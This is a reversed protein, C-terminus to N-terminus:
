GLFAGGFTSYAAYYTFSAGAAFPGSRLDVFDGAQLQMVRTLSVSDASRFAAHGATDLIGNRAFAIRAEGVVATLYLQATFLYRGAAPATFRGTAPSYSSGNNHIAQPFALATAPTTVGVSGATSGAEFAPLQPEAVLGTARDIRLAQRWTSGDGSVKLGLDDDGILGIEARGGYGSQLLLSLV